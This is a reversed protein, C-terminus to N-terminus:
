ARNYYREKKFYKYRSIEDIWVEFDELSMEKIERTAKGTNTVLQLAEMKSRQKMDEQIIDEIIDELIDPVTLLRWLNRPLSRDLERKCYPLSVSEGYRDLYIKQIFQSIIERTENKKPM